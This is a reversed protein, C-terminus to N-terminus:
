VISLLKKCGWSEYVDVIQRLDDADRRLFSSRKQLVEKAGLAGFKRVLYDVIGGVSEVELALEFTRTKSRRQSTAASRVIFKAQALSIIPLRDLICEACSVLWEPDNEDPSVNAVRRKSASPIISAALM